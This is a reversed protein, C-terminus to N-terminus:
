VLLDCNLWICMHAGKQIDNHSSSSHVNKFKDGLTCTCGDNHPMHRPMHATKWTLPICLAEAKLPLALTKGRKEATDDKGGCIVFSTLQM